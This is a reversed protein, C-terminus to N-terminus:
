ISLLLILSNKNRKSEKKKRYEKKIEKQDGNRRGKCSEESRKISGKKGEKTKIDTKNQQVEREQTANPTEIRLGAIMVSINM